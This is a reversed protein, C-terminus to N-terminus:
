QEALEKINPMMFKQFFMLDNEKTLKKQLGDGARQRDKPPKLSKTIGNIKTILKRRDVFTRKFPLTRKMTNDMKVNDHKDLNYNAPPESEGKRLTKPLSGAKDGVCMFMSNDSRDAYKRINVAPIHSDNATVQSLSEEHGRTFRLEHASYFGETIDKRRSSRTFDFIGKDPRKLHTWDAMRQQLYWSPEEKAFVEKM